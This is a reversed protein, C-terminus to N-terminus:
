RVGTTAWSDAPWPSDTAGRYDQRVSVQWVGVPRGHREAVVRTSGVCRAFWGHIILTGAFSPHSRADQVVVATRGRLADLDFRPNPHWLNPQNAPGGV